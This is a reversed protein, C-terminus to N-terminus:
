KNDTVMELGLCFWVRFDLAKCLHTGSPLLAATIGMHFSDRSGLLQLALCPPRTAFSGAYSPLAAECLNMV